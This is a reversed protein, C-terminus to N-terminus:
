GEGLIESELDEFSMNELAQEMEQELADYAIDEPAEQGDQQQDGTMETNQVCGSTLVVAILFLATIIALLKM